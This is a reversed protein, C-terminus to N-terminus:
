AVETVIGDLRLLGIADLRFPASGRRVFPHM